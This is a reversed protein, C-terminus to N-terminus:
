YQLRGGLLLVTATLDNVPMNSITWEQRLDGKLQVM